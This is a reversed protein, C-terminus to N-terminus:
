KKLLNPLYTQRNKGTRKFSVHIWYHGSKDHELILQDFRNDLLWEIWSRATAMDQITSGDPAKITPIHLDAAEGKMHQSNSVGGVAKNLTPCRYGSGIIIPKGYWQRLPELVEECLAKLNAVITESPTNDIHRATATPSKVFESLKFHPTLPIDQM